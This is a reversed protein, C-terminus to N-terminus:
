PNNNPPVLNDNNEENEENEENDEKNLKRNCSLLGFCVSIQSCRSKFIVLLVSALAASGITIINSYDGATWIYGNQNINSDNM